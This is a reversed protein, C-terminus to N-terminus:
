PKYSSLKLIKQADVNETLIEKLSKDTEKQYKKLIKYGIYVATRGPSEEPMGVSTPNPAIYRMIKTYNNEYILNNNTLFHFILRENEECWKWQADSFGFLTAMSKQPLVHELYLMQKGHLIMLNILKKEEENIPYVNTYLVKAAAIPINERTNFRSIFKPIGIFESEYPWFNEGFYMDLGLGLYDDWTFAPSQLYSTIYIVKKPLYFTSDYYRIHKYLETIAEDLDSHNKYVLQVTDLLNRFDPLTFREKFEQNSLDNTLEVQIIGFWYFTFFEGYKEKLKFLDESVKTTDVKALDEFFPIFEVDVQIGSTDINKRTETTCSVVFLIFIILYYRTNLM